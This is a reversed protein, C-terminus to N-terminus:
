AALATRSYEGRVAGAITVRRVARHRASPGVFTTPYLDGYGVTTMTVVVWWFSSPISDFPSQVM